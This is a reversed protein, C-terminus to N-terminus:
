AGYTKGDRALRGGQLGSAQQETAKPAEGNTGLLPNFLQEGRNGLCKLRHITRSGIMHRSPTDPPGSILCMSISRWGEWRSTM